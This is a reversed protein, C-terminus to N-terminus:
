FPLKFDAPLGMGGTVKSMEDNFTSEVKGKADNHAAVILDELMEKEDAVLLSPDISIKVMNGKGTLTMKVMGGGAAGEIERGEMEEQLTAIKQQMKQAQKMMQQINM